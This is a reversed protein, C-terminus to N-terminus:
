RRAATSPVSPLSGSFAAPPVEPINGQTRQAQALAAEKLDSDIWREFRLRGAREVETALALIYESGIAVWAVATRTRRPTEISSRQEHGRTGIPAIQTQYRRWQAQFWSNWHGRDYNDSLATWYNDLDTLVADTLRTSNTANDNVWSFERHAAREFGNEISIFFHGPNSSFASDIASNGASKAADGVASGITSATTQAVRIAFAGAGAAILGGFGPVILAMGVSFIAKAINANAAAAARIATEADQAGNTMDTYVFGMRHSINRVKATRQAQTLPTRQIVSPAQAQLAQRSWRQVAQNGFSRQFQLTSHIDPRGQGHLPQGPKSSKVSPTKQAQKPRETRTHMIM